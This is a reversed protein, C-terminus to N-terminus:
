FSDEEVSISSLGNPLNGDADRVPLDIQHGDTTVLNVSGFTLKLLLVLLHCLELGISLCTLHNTSSM